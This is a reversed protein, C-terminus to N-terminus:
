LIILSTGRKGNPVTSVASSLRICTMATTMRAIADFEAKNM